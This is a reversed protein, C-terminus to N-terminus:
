VSVCIYTKYKPRVEVEDSLLINTVDQVVGVFYLPFHNIGGYVKCKSFDIINDNNQCNDSVRPSLREKQLPVFFPYSSVYILSSSESTRKTSFCFFSILVCIYSRPNKEKEL